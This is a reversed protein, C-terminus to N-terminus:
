CSMPMVDAGQGRVVYDVAQRSMSVEIPTSHRQNPPTSLEKPCEGNNISQM